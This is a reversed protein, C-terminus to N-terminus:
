KAMVKLSEVDARVQKREALPLPIMGMNYFYGTTGIANESTLEALLEKFGPILDVHAKKVFVMIPFTHAYKNQSVNVLTPQMNDMSLARLNEKLSITLPLLSLADPSQKLSASVDTFRPYESYFGDKRFNKCASEFDKPNNAELGKFYSIERCGPLIVSSIYTQYLGLAPEPGLVQLKIDPLSPNIDKWSKYPNPILKGGDKPDPVEKAIALFIDKRSLDNIKGSPGQVAVLADNGLRIRIIESVGNKNCLDLEASQIDRTGSNINPTDRGTGACFLKFGTTTNNNLAQPPKYQPAKSVLQEGAKLILPTPTLGGAIVVQEPVTQARAVATMGGLLM